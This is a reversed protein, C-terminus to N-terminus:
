CVINFEEKTGSEGHGPFIIANDTISALFPSTIEYYKKRNGGPLRLIVKEGAILSDGTFYYDNGIAICISGKSHGPTYIIKFQIDEWQFVGNNELVIDGECSYDEPINYRERWNDPLNKFLVMSELYAALNEKPDKMAKLAEKSGMICCEFYRKYYNIGQIHDYHEHTVIMWIKEIGKTKMLQLAAESEVSDIMVATHEGLLIYMNSHILDYEYRYLKRGYIKLDDKNIKM